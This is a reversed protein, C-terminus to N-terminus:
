VVVSTSTGTSSVPGTPGTVTGTGTGALLMGTIGNALGRSLDPLMPGASQWLGSLTAYLVLQLSPANATTIRSVDQGVGVGAVAGQYRANSTFVDSIGLSVVMALSPALQGGLRAGALANGMLGPNPPVILSTTPANIVGGGVTGVAQGTLALNAPSFVGWSVVAQAIGQALKEFPAGLFSFQGAAKAGM